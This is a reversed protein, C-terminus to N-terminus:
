EMAWKLATPLEERWCNPDHGGSFVPDNVRYGREKLAACARRYSDLQSTSQHLGSPGHSIDKSTEEDGVSIWLRSSQTEATPLSEKFRENEWWMSPSQCIASYFLHPAQVALHAAALGSLSLGVIILPTSAAGNARMWNLVDHAIFASYDADCTYDVQRAAAGHHSLYCARVPPILGQQQLGQIMSPAYVAEIYIEADLFLLSWRPTGEYPPQM